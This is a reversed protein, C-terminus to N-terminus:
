KKKPDSTCTGAGCSAQGTGGAKMKPRNVPQASAAGGQVTANASPAAITTPTTRARDEDQKAGPPPPMAAATASPAMAPDSSVASPREAKSCSAIVASTGLAALTLAM